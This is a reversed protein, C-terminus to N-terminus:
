RAGRQAPAAPMKDLAAVLKKVAQSAMTRPADEGEIPPPIQCSWITENRKDKMELSLQGAYVRRADASYMRQRPNLTYYGKVWVEGAGSVVADAKQASDALTLNSSRKLSEIFSQRLQDAGPKEGFSAVYVSQPRIVPTSAQSAWAAIAACCGASIWLM